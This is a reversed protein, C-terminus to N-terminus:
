KKTYKRMEVYAFAALVDVLRETGHGPVDVMKDPNTRITEVLEQKTAQRPRQSSPAENEPELFDEPKLTSSALYDTLSKLRAPPDHKGNSWAAYIPVTGNKAGAAFTAAGMGPLNDNAFLAVHIPRDDPLGYITVNPQAMHTFGVVNSVFDPGWGSFGLIPDGTTPELSLLLYADGYVEPDTTIKLVANGLQRVWAIAQEGAKVEVDAFGHLHVFQSTTGQLAPLGETGSWSQAFVRYEGVPVEEFQFSGKDLAVTYWCLDTIRATHSFDFPRKTKRDLPYGTKADCLFVVASGVHMAQDHADALAGVITGTEAGFTAALCWTSILCPALLLHRM